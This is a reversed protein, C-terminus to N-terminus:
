NSFAMETFGCDKQELNGCSLLYGTSKVIFRVLVDTKSFVPLSPFSQSFNDVKLTIKNQM